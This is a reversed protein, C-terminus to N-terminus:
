EGPVYRVAMSAHRGYGGAILVSGDQLVVARGAVRPEPMPAAPTSAGTAPDYIETSPTAGYQDEGGAVLVRGDPLLAVTPNERRTELRGADRWENTAPDYRLVATWEEDIDSGEVGKWASGFLLASGDPLAVLDRGYFMADDMPYEGTVRFRGTAGDYVEAVREAREDSGLEYFVDEYPGGRLDAVLVRGDALTVAAPSTRPVALSGTRSWTGSGPDYVEASALARAPPHPMAIDLLPGRPHWAATTIGGHGGQPPQCGGNYRDGILGEWDSWRFVDAFFGGAVLVRGDDLTTGAPATRATDLLGSKTWREVAPDFIWTSSYSQYGGIEWPDAGPKPGSAGGTVLARGDALPVAAFLARPTALSATTTWQGTAPDWMEAATADDPAACFATYETPDNSGDNGVALVRGDGLLVLHPGERPVTM